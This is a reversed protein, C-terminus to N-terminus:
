INAFGELIEDQETKLEKEDKEASEDLYQVTGTGAPLSTIKKSQEILSKFFEVEAKFVTEADEPTVSIKGEDYRARITNATLADVSELVTNLIGGVTNADEAAQKDEQMKKVADSLTVITSNQEELRKTLQAITQDKEEPSKEVLVETGCSACFKSEALMESECKRCQMKEVEESKASENLNLKERMLEVGRDSNLYDTVMSQMDRDKSDVAEQILKKVNDHETLQKWQEETLKEIDFMTDEQDERFSVVDTSTVSGMVVQDWTIFNYDEGIIAVQKGNWNSDNENYEPLSEGYTVVESSGSGRSSFGVHVKADMKTKVIRGSPTDLIDWVAYVSGDDEIWAKTAVGFERNPDPYTNPNPHGSIGHIARRVFNDQQAELAKRIVNKRYIRGTATVRDAHGVKAKARAIVGKPLEEGENLDVHELLTSIEPQHDAIYNAM